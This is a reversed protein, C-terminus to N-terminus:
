CEGAAGIELDQCRPGAEGDYAVHAPGAPLHLQLGVSGVETCLHSRGLRGAALSVALRVAGLRGTEVLRVDLIGDDLRPRWAPAFGHPQYRSNGIFMMALLRERGNIVVRLPRDNRLVNHVALVAALAKGLKDEWQEPAIVFNPYSGLSCTNLFTLDVANGTDSDVGKITGLDVQIASGSRLAAIAEEPGTLGLDAAFHNLTGGPLVLLPLGTDAAVRAAASVSGDGGGVALVEASVAADRM